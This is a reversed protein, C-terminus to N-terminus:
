IMLLLLVIKFTTILRTTDAAVLFIINKKHQELAATPNYWTRHVPTSIKKYSLYNGSSEHKHYSNNILAINDLSDAVPKCHATSIM